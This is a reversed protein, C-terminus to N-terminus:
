AHHAHLRKSDLERHIVDGGSRAVENCVSDDAVVAVSPRRMLVQAEAGAGVEIPLDGHLGLRGPEEALRELAPRPFALQHDEGSHGVAVLRQLRAVPQRASTELDAGLVAVRHPDDGLRRQDLAVEVQELLDLPGRAHGDAHAHREPVALMGMGDLGIDRGRLPPDLGDLSQGGGSQAHAHVDRRHDGPEGIRVDRADQLRRVRGSRPACPEHEQSQRARHLLHELLAQALRQRQPRVAHEIAHPLRAAALEVVRAESDPATAFPLVGIRGARQEVGGHLSQTHIFPKLGLHALIRETAGPAALLQRQQLPLACGVEMSINSGSPRLEYLRAIIRVAASTARNRAKGAQLRSPRLVDMEAAVAPAVPVGDSPDSATTVALFPLTWTNRAASPETESAFTPSRSETRSASRVSAPSASTATSPTRMRRRSPLRRSSFCTVFCPRRARTRPLMSDWTSWIPLSSTSISFLSAVACLAPPWKKRVAVPKSPTPEARTLRTVEGENLAVSKGGGSVNVVGTVSAVAVVGRGDATVFFHGGASHATADSNEMEVDLRGIQDVQSEISGRVRARLGQKTVQKLELRSGELLRMRVGDVAVDAEGVETRLADRVSLRDGVKAESVSGDAARLVQVKGNKATVVAESGDSSPGTAGTTAASISTSRGDRKCAPFALFLAVLAAARIM